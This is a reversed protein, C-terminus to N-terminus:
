IFWVFFSFGVPNKWKELSLRLEGGNIGFQVKGFQVKGVFLKCQQENFQITLYLDTQNKSLKKSFPNLSNHPVAESHIEIRLCDPCRDRPENPQNEQPPVPSNM